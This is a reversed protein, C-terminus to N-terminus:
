STRVFIEFSNQDGAFKIFFRLQYRANGSKMLENKLLVSNSISVWEQPYFNVLFKLFEFLEKEGNLFKILFSLFIESETQLLTNYCELLISVIKLVRTIIIFNRLKEGDTKATTWKPSFLAIVLNCVREKLLATFQSFSIFVSHYQQLIIEVMELCFSKKIKSADLLSQFFSIRVNSSKIGLVGLCFRFYVM